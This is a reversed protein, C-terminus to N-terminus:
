RGLLKNLYEMGMGEAQSSPVGLLSELYPNESKYSYGVRSRTPLPADPNTPPTVVFNQDGFGGSGYEKWKNNKYDYWEGSTNSKLPSYYSSDGDYQVMSSPDNSPKDFRSGKLFQDYEAYYAQPNSVAHNKLATDYQGVKNVDQFFGKSNSKFDSFAEPKNKFLYYYLGAATPGRDISAQPM